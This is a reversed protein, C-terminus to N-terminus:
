LSAKLHVQEVNMNKIKLKTTVITVILAKVTIMKQNTMHHNNHVMINNHGINDYVTTTM